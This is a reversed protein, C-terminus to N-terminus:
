KDLIALFRDGLLVWVPVVLSSRFRVQLPSGIMGRREGEVEGHNMYYYLKFHSPMIQEFYILYKGELKNVALLFKTKIKLPRKNGKQNKKGSKKRDGFHGILNILHNGQKNIRAEEQILLTELEIMNWKDKITNYNIQFPGYPGVLEHHIDYSFKLGMSELKAVINIMETVHELMTHSGDFKITTLTGILTGVVSKNTTGSQSISQVSEMFEKVNNTKPIMSKINEGITMQMFMLTLRNSREWIKYFFNHEISSTDTIITPKDHLPALDLDLVGLHGNLSVLDISSRLLCFKRIFLFLPLY